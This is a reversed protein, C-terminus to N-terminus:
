LYLFEIDINLGNNDAKEWNKIMELCEIYAFKEGFAFQNSDSERIEKLEELYYMLHEIIYHLTEEATYRKTM